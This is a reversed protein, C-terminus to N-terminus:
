YPCCSAWYSARLFTKQMVSFGPDAQLVSCNDWASLCSSQLTYSSLPDPGAAGLHQPM